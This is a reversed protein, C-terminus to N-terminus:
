SSANLKKRGLGAELLYITKRAQEWPLKALKDREEQARKKVAPDKVNTNYKGKTFAEWVGALKEGSGNVRTRFLYEGLKDQTETNFTAEKWNPGLAKEGIEELTQKTIQLAGVASTGYAVGNIVGLGKAQTTNRLEDQFELLEAVRMESPKKSPLGHEGNGVVADYGTFEAAKQNKLDQTRPSVAEKLIKAADDLSGTPPETPSTSVAADKILSLANPGFQNKLNSIREAQTSNPNAKLFRNWTDAARNRKSQLEAPTLQSSTSKSEENPYPITWGFKRATENAAAKESNSASNGAKATGRSAKNVLEEAATRTAAETTQTNEREKLQTTLNAVTENQVSLRQEAAALSPAMEPNLKVRERLLLVENAASQQKVVAQNLLDVQALTEKATAQKNRSTNDKLKTINTGVAEPNLYWGNFAPDTENGAQKFSELVNRGLGGVELSENMVSFVLADTPESIGGEKIIRQKTAAFNGELQQPDVGAWPSTPDINKKIESFDRQDNMLAPYDFTAAAKDQNARLTAEEALAGQPTLLTSEVTGPAAPNGAVAATLRDTVAASAPIPTGNPAIIGSGSPIGASPGVGTIGGVSSASGAVVPGGYRGGYTQEIQSLLAARQEETANPALQNYKAIAEEFTASSNKIANFNGFVWKKDQESRLSNASNHLQNVAKDQVMDRETLTNVGAGLNQITGISATDGDLGILSRDIMAQRYAAPDQIANARLAIARDAANQNASQVTNVMGQGSDLAQNFLKNAVEVGKLAGSFDPADVNRWTIQSM